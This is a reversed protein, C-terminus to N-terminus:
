LIFKLHIGMDYRGVGSMGVAPIIAWREKNSSFLVNLSLGQTITFTQVSINAGGSQSYHFWLKPSFTLEFHPHSPFFTLFLRPNFAGALYGKHFYCQLPVGMGVLLTGYEGDDESFSVPRFMVKYDLEVMHQYLSTDIASAEYRAFLNHQDSIGFGARVGYAPFFTTKESAITSNRFAGTYHGGLEVDGRKLNRATQYNLTSTNLCSSFSLLIFICNTLVTTKPVRKLM